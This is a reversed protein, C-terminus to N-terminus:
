VSAHICLCCALVKCKWPGAALTTRLPTPGCWCSPTRRRAPRAAGCRSRRPAARTPRRGSRSRRGTSPSSSRAPCGRASKLRLTARTRECACSGPSFSLMRSCEETFGRTCSCSTTARRRVAPGAPAPCSEPQTCRHRRPVQCGAASKGCTASPGTTHWFVGPGSRCLRHEDM